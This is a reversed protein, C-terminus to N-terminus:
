DRIYRTGNRFLSYLVCLSIHNAGMYFIIVDNKQNDNKIIVCLENM